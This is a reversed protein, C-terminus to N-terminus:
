AADHDEEEQVQVSLREVNKLSVALTETVVHLMLRFEDGNNDEGVVCWLAGPEDLKEASIVYAGRMVNRLTVLNVRARRLMEASFSLGTESPEYTRAYARLWTTEIRQVSKPQPHM